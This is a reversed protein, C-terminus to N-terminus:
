TSSATNIASSGPRRRPTEPTSSVTELYIQTGATAPFTYIDRAGVTDINGATTGVPQTIDGPM